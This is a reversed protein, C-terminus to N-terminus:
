WRNGDSYVPGNERSWQCLVKTRYDQLNNSLHRLSQKDKLRFDLTRTLWIPTIIAKASDPKFRAISLVRIAEKNFVPDPSKLIKIEEAKGDIGILAQLVVEGELRKKLAEEPYHILRELPITEYPEETFRFRFNTEICPDRLEPQKEPPYLLGDQRTWGVAIRAPSSDKSQILLSCENKLDFNITRSTLMRVPPQNSLSDHTFHVSSMVRIAENNFIPDTSNLIKIESAWGDSDIFAQLEVKGEIRNRVAEEPYHILSDLPTSEYPVNTNISPENLQGNAALPVALLALALIGFRWWM